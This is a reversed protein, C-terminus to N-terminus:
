AEKSDEEDYEQHMGEVFLLEIGNIILYLGTIPIVAYLVSSPLRLGALTSEGMLVTFHWGYYLMLVGLGIVLIKAILDCVKQLNKPFMNVVVGVGIHLKDKFGYAIGLFAVWVFLVRSLEESWPPIHSLFQRSFVQHIIVITMAALFFLATYLLVKDLINKIKKIANM